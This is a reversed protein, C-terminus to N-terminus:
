EINLIQVIFIKYIFLRFDKVFIDNKTKIYEQSPKIFNLLYNSTLYIHKKIIYNLLLM